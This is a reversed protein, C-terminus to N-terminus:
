AEDTPARRTLVGPRRWCRRSFRTSHLLRIGRDRLAGAVGLHALRYEEDRAADPGRRAHLDFQPKFLKVRVQAM